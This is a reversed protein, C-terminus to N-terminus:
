LHASGDPEAMKIRIGHGLIWKSNEFVLWFSGGLFAPLLSCCAAAVVVVVVVVVV